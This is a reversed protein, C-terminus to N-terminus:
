DLIWAVSGGVKRKDIEGEEALRDLRNFATRTPCDVMEAVESTGGMGDLEQLANLFEDDSYKSEFQGTEEDQNENM